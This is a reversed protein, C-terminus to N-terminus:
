WCNKLLSSPTKKPNILCRHLESCRKHDRQESIKHPSHTQWLCSSESHQFSCNGREVLVLWACLKASQLNCVSLVQLEKCFLYFLSFMTLLNWWKVLNESFAYFNIVQCWHYQCNKFREGIGKYKAYVFTKKTDLCHRLSAKLICPQHPLNTAVESDWVQLLSSQLTSGEIFKLSM